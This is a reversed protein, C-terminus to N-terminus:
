YEMARKNHADSVQALNAHGTHTCTHTHTPIYAHARTHSHPRTRKTLDTANLCNKLRFERRRITYFM